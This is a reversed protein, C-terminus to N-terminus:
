HSPYYPLSMNNELNSSGMWTSGGGKIELDGFEIIAPRSGEPNHPDEKDFMCM